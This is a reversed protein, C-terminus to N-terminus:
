KLLITPLYRLKSHTSFLKKEEEKRKEKKLIYKKLIFFSYFFVYRPGFSAHEAWIWSCIMFVHLGLSLPDEISTGHM